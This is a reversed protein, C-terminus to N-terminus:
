APTPLVGLQPLFTAMDWYDHVEKIRDGSLRFLSAGRITFSRGTAPTEPLDGKQSGSMTWAAAANEGEGFAANLEVRCDPVAAMFVGAFARLEDKSRNVVGLTVDEYVLDDVFLALLADVDASWADAWGRVLDTVAM